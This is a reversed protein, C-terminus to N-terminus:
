RIGTSGHKSRVKAPGLCLHRRARETIHRGIALCATAAPSPAPLVHSSHPPTFAHTSDREQAPPHSRDSLSPLGSHGQHAWLCFKHPIQGSPQSPTVEPYAGAQIWRRM